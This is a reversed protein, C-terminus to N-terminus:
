LVYRQLLFLILGSVFLLMVLSIMGLILALETDMGDLNYENSRVLLPTTEVM